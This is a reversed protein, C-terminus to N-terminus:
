QFSCFRESGILYYFFICIFLYVQPVSKISLLKFQPHGCLDNVLDFMTFHSLLSSSLSSSSTSNISFLSSQKHNLSSSSSLISPIESYNLCTFSPLLVGCLGSAIVKNLDFFTPNKIKLLDVCIKRLIENESVIISDSCHHLHSLSLISNYDQVAVDGAVFPWAVQNVVVPPDFEDQLCETIYTGVGLLLCVIM